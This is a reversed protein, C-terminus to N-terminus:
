LLSLTSELKSELAEIRTQMTSLQEKLKKNEETLEKISEVFLGTLNGYAVSMKGEPDKHVAEPLVKELDQALIGVYRPDVKTIDEKETITTM